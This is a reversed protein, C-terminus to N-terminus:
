VMNSTPSKIFSNYLEVEQLAIDATNSAIKLYKWYTTDTVSLANFQGGTLSSASALVTWGTNSAFATNWATPSNTGYLTVNATTTMPYIYFNGVRVTYKTFDWAYSQRLQSPSVLSRDFGNSNSGAEHKSIIKNNTLPNTYPATNNVTGLLYIGGYPVAQDNVYDGSSYIYNDTYSVIGDLSIEVFLNVAGTGSTINQNLANSLNSFTLIPDTPAPSSGIQQCIVVGLIPTTFTYIPFTINNATWKSSTLTVGSLLVPVYGAVNCLVLDSVLTDTNNPLTTVLHAYYTGTSLNATSFPPFVFTAM